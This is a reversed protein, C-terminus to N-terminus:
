AASGGIEPFNLFIWSLGLWVELLKTREPSTVSQLENKQQKDLQLQRQGEHMPTYVFFTQMQWSTSAVHQLGSHQVGSFFFTSVQHMRCFPCEVQTFGYMHHTAKKDYQDRKQKQM